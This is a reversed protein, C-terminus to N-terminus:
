PKAYVAHFRSRCCRIVKLFSSRARGQYQKTRIESGGKNKIPPGSFFSKDICRSAVDWFMANLELLAISEIMEVSLLALIQSM